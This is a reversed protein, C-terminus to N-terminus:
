AADQNSGEDSDNNDRDENPDSEVRNFITGLVDRRTNRKNEVFYILDDVLQKDQNNAPKFQIGAGMPHVWVVSAVLQRVRGGLRITLKIKDQPQFRHTPSEVFAGTLSVNKIVGVDTERAYNHRYEVPMQLPVRVAPQGQLDNSM